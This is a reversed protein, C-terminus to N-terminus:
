WSPWGPAYRSGTPKTPRATSPSASTSRSPGPGTPASTRRSSTSAGSASTARSAFYLKGDRAAVPFGDHRETNVTAGLTEPRGFQGGELVAMRYLDLGGRSEHADAAFYLWRGDDSVAPHLCNVEAFQTEIREASRWTDGKREAYFLEMTYNGHRNPSESNMTFYLRQGDASLCASATNSTGRNFRADTREAAGYGGSEPEIPAEYLGVMARGTWGSTKRSGPRDSSWYVRGEHLVPFNDDSSTNHLFTDLRANPYRRAIAKRSKAYDRLASARTDEPKMEEFRALYPEADRIRGQDVLMASVELLHWPRPRPKDVLPKCLSTAMRLNGIKKYYGALDFILAESTDGDIMALELLRIADAYQLEEALKEAARVAKTPEATQSMLSEGFGLVTLCALLLYPHVFPKM